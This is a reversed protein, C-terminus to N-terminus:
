PTVSSPNATTTGRPLTPFSERSGPTACTQGLTVYWGSSSLVGPIMPAGCTQPGVSAVAPCPIFIPIMSSPM